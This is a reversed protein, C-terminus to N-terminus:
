VEFTGAALLQEIPVLPGARVPGAPQQQDALVIEGDCIVVM